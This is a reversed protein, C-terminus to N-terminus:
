TEEPPEDARSRPRPLVQESSASQFQRIAREIAEFGFGRRRLLGVMRQIKKPGNLRSYSSRKRELVKLAFALEDVEAFDSSLVEEIVEPNVGKSRLEERLRPGWVPDFGMHQEIWLRVFRKDDVLGAAELSSVVKSVTAKSFGSQLLRNTLENRTRERVALLKFAKERARQEESSSEEPQRGGERKGSQPGKNFGCM